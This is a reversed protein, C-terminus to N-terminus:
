RRCETRQIQNNATKSDPSAHNLLSCVNVQEAPDPAKRKGCPPGSESRDGEALAFGVGLADEGLVESPNHGVGIALSASFRPTGFTPAPRAPATCRGDVGVHSGEGTFAVCPCSKERSSKGALWETEGPLPAALFIVAGYGALGLASQVCWLVIKRRTEQSMRRTTPGDSM